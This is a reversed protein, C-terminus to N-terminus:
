FTFVGLADDSSLYLISDRRRRELPTMGGEWGAFIRIGKETKVCKEVPTRYKHGAMM